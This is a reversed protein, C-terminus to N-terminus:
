QVELLISHYEEDVTYDLLISETSDYYLRLDSPWKEEESVIVDDNDENSHVLSISQLELYAVPPSCKLAVAPRPITFLYSFFGLMLVVLLAVRYKNQFWSEM